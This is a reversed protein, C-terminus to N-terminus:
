AAQPPCLRRRLRAVTTDTWSGIGGRANKIERANLERAIGANSTIGQDEIDTIIEAVDLAFTDAKVKVAQIARRNGHEELWAVMARAGRPNGLRTGRKKAEALAARTRESIRKREDEAVVALIGVTLENANPMDACVFKVGSDRLALLFAANRSLRDLKAIVLRAGTVKALHLAKELQPRANVKGSEVETFEKVLTWRGGDLYERVAAKQADLGLGSQGQKPTSVRYYAVFKGTAM